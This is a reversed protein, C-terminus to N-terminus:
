LGVRLARRTLFTSAFFAAAFYAVTDKQGQPPVPLRAQSLILNQILTDTRNRDPGGSIFFYVGKHHTNKQKNHKTSRFRVSPEARYNTFVLSLATQVKRTRFTDAVIFDHHFEM